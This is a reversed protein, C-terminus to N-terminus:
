DPRAPFLPREVRGRTPVNEVEESEPLDGVDPHSAYWNAYRESGPNSTVGHAIVSLAMTILAVTMITEAGALTTDTVVVLAFIVTAIGRPGFWGMYLVTQMSFHAGIMSITVPIMRVITLALVAMLGVQWTLGDFAFGLGIAGFIMFAIQTMVKGFEDAFQENDGLKGDTTRGYTLGGFFAAIFGSGGLPDAIGYCLAAMAVVSIRSWTPSLWGSRKSRVLLRGGILGIVVGVALAIAIEDIFIRAIAPSGESQEAFAILILLIPLAIGDNLGSEVNLGVRVREPVRPNSIVAQGLAADTPALVVAIMGAEWVSLDTFLLVAVLWGFAITLPMGIGLLRGPIDADRRWSSFHLASADTFLVLTLTAILFADVVEVSLLSRPDILDFGRNGGIYGLTMFVIPGTIITTVLRHEVLAYGMVALAIFAVAYEM